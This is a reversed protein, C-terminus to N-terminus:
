DPKSYRLLHLVECAERFLRGWHKVVKVTFLTHTKKNHNKKTHTNKFPIKEADTQVCKDSAAKEVGSEGM